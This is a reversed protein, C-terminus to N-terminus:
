EDLIYIYIIFISYYYYIRWFLLIEIEIDGLGCWGIIFHFVLIVWDYCFLVFHDFFFEFSFFSLDNSIALFEIGGVMLDLSLESFIFWWGFLSRM